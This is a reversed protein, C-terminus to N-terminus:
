KTPNQKQSPTTDRVESQDCEAAFTASNADSQLINTVDLIRSVPAATSSGAGGPTKGRVGSQSKKDYGAVVGGRRGRVRLIVFKSAHGPHARLSPKAATGLFPVRNGLPELLRGTRVALNDAHQNPVAIQKPKVLSTGLSFGHTGSADKAAVAICTWPAAPSEADPAGVLDSPEAKGGATQPPEELAGHGVADACGDAGGVALETVPGQLADPLAEVLALALDARCQRASTRRRGVGRVPRCRMDESMKLCSERVGVTRDGVKLM